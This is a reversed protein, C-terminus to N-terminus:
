SKQWPVATCFLGIHRVNETVVTVQRRNGFRKAQAILISDGDLRESTTFPKGIDHTEAWIRAAEHLIATTLPAYLISRGLVDLNMLQASRHGGPVNRRELGRRVEYDVIEPLVLAHSQAKTRFWAKVDQFKSPHVLQSVIRSDLVLTAPM